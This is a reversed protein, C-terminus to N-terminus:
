LYYVKAINLNISNNEFILLINKGIKYKKNDNEIYLLKCTIIINEHDPLISIQGNKTELVILDAENIELDELFDIQIKKKLANM